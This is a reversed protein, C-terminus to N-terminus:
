NDGFQPDAPELVESEAPEREEDDKQVPAEAESTGCCAEDGSVKEGEPVAYAIRPLDTVFRMKGWMAVALLSGFLGLACLSTKRRAFQRSEGGM